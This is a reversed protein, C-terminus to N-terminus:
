KLKRLETMLKTRGVKFYECMEKMSAGKSKREVLKDIDIVKYLKNEKGYKYRKSDKSHLKTHGSHTVVALNDLRNDLKDGNIHHVDFEKPLIFGLAKEMVYRHEMINGNKDTSPHEPVYVEVYGNSTRRRYGKFNWTKEGKRSESKIKSLSEKDKHLGLRNAKHDISSKTKGIKDAIDQTREYPYHEKMYELQEETWGADLRLIM